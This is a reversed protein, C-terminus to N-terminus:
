PVRHSCLEPPVRIESTPCDWLAPRALALLWRGKELTRESRGDRRLKELYEEAIGGFTTAMSAAHSLKDLKRKQSPDIGQTVLAKAEDRRTRADKLSVEPYGGFSLTKEIGHFRYAMRWLKSGSPMVVLFLWGGDSLKFQRETPKANRIQTDTLPTAPLAKAPISRIGAIIGAIEAAGFM